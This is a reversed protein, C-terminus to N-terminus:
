PLAPRSGTIATGVRLHTAGVEIATEFDGSMGASIFRSSPSVARIQEALERLRMFARIPEMGLPAVAMPGLLRLSESAVIRETLAALDAPAVGGRSPDASSREDLDIQLFVDTRTDDEVSGRDSTRRGLADALEPRDVSHIVSAYERVQRAKKTQLQGVFHWRLDDPTTPDAALEAAKQRAEQHRNEGFDRVGLDILDRVLEVPHFKTIVILTLEDASRGSRVASQAIREQVEALREALATPDTM